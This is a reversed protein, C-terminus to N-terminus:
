PEGGRKKYASVLTDGHSLLRAREFRGFKEPLDKRRSHEVVVVTKEGVLPSSLLRELFPAVDYDYPPDMLIIGYEGKLEDIAREARMRFVKGRKEFGAKKLNGKIIDCMLPSIEVFHVEGAGRSLAEIGLSGTGSFLDLVRGWDEAIASLMSFIAERVRESTPRIRGGGKLIKGKAEGGTIRIM